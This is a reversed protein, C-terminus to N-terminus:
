CLGWRCTASAASPSASALSRLCHELHSSKESCCFSLTKWFAMWACFFLVLAAYYLVDITVIVADGVLVGDEELGMLLNDVFASFLFLSQRPEFCRHFRRM